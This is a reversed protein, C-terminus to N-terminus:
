QVRGVPFYIQLTRGKQVVYRKRSKQEDSWENGDEGQQSASRNNFFLPILNRKIHESPCYTRSSKKARIRFSLNLFPRGAADTRVISSVSQAPTMKRISTMASYVYGPLALASFDNVGASTRRTCAGSLSAAFNM